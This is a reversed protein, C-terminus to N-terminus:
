RRKYGMGKTGKNWPVHDSAFGYGQLAPPTSGRAWNNRMHPRVWHGRVLGPAMGAKTPKRINQLVQTTDKRTTKVFESKKRGGPLFEGNYLPRMSKTVYTVGLLGFVDAKAAANFPDKKVRKSRGMKPSPKPNPASSLPQPIFEDKIQQQRANGENRLWVRFADFQKRAWGDPNSLAEQVFMTEDLPKGSFRQWKGQGGDFRKIYSFNIKAHKEIVKSLGGDYGMEVDPLIPSASSSASSSPSYEAVAKRSRNRTMVSSRLAAMARRQESERVEIRQKTTLPINKDMMDTRKNAALIRADMLYKNRSPM